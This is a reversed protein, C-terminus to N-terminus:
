LKAYRDDKREANDGIRVVRARALSAGPWGSPRPSEVKPGSPDGYSLRGDVVVQLRVGCAISGAAAQWM